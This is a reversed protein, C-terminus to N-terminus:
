QLATIMSEVAVTPIIHNKELSLEPVINIINPLAAIGLDNDFGLKCLHMGHSSQHLMGLIDRHHRYFLYRATTSADNLSFDGDINNLIYQIYMGACVSDELAFRGNKGVCLFIITNSDRTSELIANMNNFCGLLVRSQSRAVLLTNALNLSYYFLTKRQVLGPVYESPSNGLDFGDIPEGNASGCLLSNERGTTTSLERAEEIDAVPIIKSAGARFAASITTSARLVDIVVVAESEIELNIMEAPTFFTLIDL